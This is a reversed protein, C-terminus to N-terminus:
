KFLRELKKSLYETDATQCEWIVLPKFGLKKIDKIEERQKAVNGSLKPEWYETNTKPMSKRRCNKHQHWFCGNIFVATKKSPIVIDPKGPLTNVHLRYRLGLSTLIKRVAIEPKTNRNRIKSM